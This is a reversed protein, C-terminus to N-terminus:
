GRAEKEKAELYDALRETWLELERGTRRLWQDHAEGREPEPVSFSPRSIPVTADKGSWLGGTTDRYVPPKDSM